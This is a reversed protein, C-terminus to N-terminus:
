VLRLGQSPHAPEGDAASGDTVTMAVCEQISLALFPHAFAETAKQQLLAALLILPWLLLRVAPTSLSNMM